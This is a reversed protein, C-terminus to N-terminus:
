VRCNHTRLESRTFFTRKCTRCRGFPPKILNWVSLKGGTSLLAQNKQPSSSKSSNSLVVINFIQEFLPKDFSHCNDAPTKDEKDKILPDAGNLYLIKAIDPKNYICSYHLVTKGDVDKANLNAKYKILMKVVELQGNGAAIMTPTQKKVNTANPNAGCDLAFEIIDLDKENSIHLLTEGDTDRPLNLLNALREDKVKKQKLQEYLDWRNHSLVTLIPAAFVLDFIKPDEDEFCIKELVEFSFYKHFFYHKYIDDLDWDKSEKLIQKIFVIDMENKEKFFSVLKPKVPFQYKRMM